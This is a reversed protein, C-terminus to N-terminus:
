KVRYWRRSYATYRIQCAHNWYDLISVARSKVPTRFKPLVRWNWYRSL